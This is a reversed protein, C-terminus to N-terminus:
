NMTLLAANGVSREAYERCHDPYAHILRACKEDIASTRVRKVSRKMCRKRTSIRKAEPIADLATHRMEM